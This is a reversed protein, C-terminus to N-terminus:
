IRRIRQMQEDDPDYADRRRRAPRRRIALILIGFALLGIAIIAGTTFAPMGDQSCAWFRGRACLERYVRMNERGILVGLIMSLGAGVVCLWGILRM